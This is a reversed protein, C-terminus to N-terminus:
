KKALRDLASAFREANDNLASSSERSVGFKGSKDWSAEVGAKAMRDRAEKIAKARAGKEQKLVKPMLALVLATVHDRNNRKIGMDLLVAEFPRWESASGMITQRANSALRYLEPYQM